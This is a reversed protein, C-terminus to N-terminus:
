HARIVVKLCQNLVPHYHGVISQLNFLQFLVCDTIYHILSVILVNINLLLIITFNSYIFFHIVPPLLILILSNSALSPILIFLIRIMAHIIDCGFYWLILYHEKWFLLLSMQRTNISRWILLIFVFYQGVYLHVNGEVVSVELYPPDLFDLIDIIWQWRSLVM